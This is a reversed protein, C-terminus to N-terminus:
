FGWNTPNPYPQKRNLYKIGKILRVLYWIFTILLVLKGILILMLVLGIFFFLFAIWFTRIQLQFHSKLWEPADDRYIYAIIVGILSSVLLLPAALLLIYVLMAINASKEEVTDSYETM